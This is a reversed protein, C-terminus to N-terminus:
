TLRNLTISSSEQKLSMHCHCAQGATVQAEKHVALKNSLHNMTANLSPEGSHLQM